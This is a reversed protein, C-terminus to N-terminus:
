PAERRRLMRVGRYLPYSALLVLLAILADHPDSRAVGALFVVTILLGIGTTWPYGWARYPRPAEPER